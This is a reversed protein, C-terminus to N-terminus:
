KARGKSPIQMRFMVKLYQVATKLMENSKKAHNLKPAFSPGIHAVKGFQCTGIRCLRFDESLNRGIGPAVARARIDQLIMLHHCFLMAFNICFIDVCVCM